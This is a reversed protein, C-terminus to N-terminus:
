ATEDNLADALVLEFLQLRLRMRMALMAILYTIAFILALGSQWPPVDLLKDISLEDSNALLFLLAALAPLVGLKEFGGQLLGLKATLRQQAFRAFRHHDKLEARPFRRLWDRLARFQALDHDSQEVLKPQWRLFEVVIVWVNRVFPLAYGVLAMLLGLKAMGVMWEAPTVLHVLISPLTGVIIGATGLVNLPMMWRPTTLVASPGDPMGLIRREIGAFSLTEAEMSLNSSCGLVPPLTANRTTWQSPRSQGGNEDVGTKTM